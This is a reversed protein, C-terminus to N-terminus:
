GSGRSRRYPAVGQEANGDGSHTTNADIAPRNGKSPEAPPLRLGIERLCWAYGGDPPNQRKHSWGHSYSLWLGTGDHSIFKSPFNVFYAQEGFDKLYTVLKWPGAIDSSELLYTDYPGNGDGRPGRGNTVCMIYKNLPAVYTATVIGMHDNWELLPRIRGFDATWVAKGGDDRGAYFEWAAPNNMSEPSPEVRLLYVQDGAAWSNYSDPRTAGHAVMYARGDPSNAMNRGFDVFHPAGIKVRRGPTGQRHLSTEYTPTMEWMKVARGDKASEGFIPNLATRQTPLWTRGEDKSINFGVFPGMTDWPDKHWDLAYSGYYWVGDHVLSGCPYQGGYPYPTHEILGARAITLDMPDSGEVVAFGTVPTKLKTFNYGSGSFVEQASGDTFPSYLNDDSAWSPYWTDAEAYTRNRGSFCIGLITDSVEFPCDAPPASGWDMARREGVSM